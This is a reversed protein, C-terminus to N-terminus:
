KRNFGIDVLAAMACSREGKERKKTSTGFLYNMSRKACYRKGRPRTASRSGAIVLCRQRSRESTTIRPRSIRYSPLSLRQRSLFFCCVLFFSSTNSKPCVLDRVIIKPRKHRKCTRIFSLVRKVYKKKLRRLKYVNWKVRRIGERSRM